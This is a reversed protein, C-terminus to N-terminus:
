LLLFNVILIKNENWMNLSDTHKLCEMLSKYQKNLMISM